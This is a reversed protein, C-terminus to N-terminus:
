LYPQLNEPLKINGSIKRFNGFTNAFAPSNYRRYNENSNACIGPLRVLFLNDKRFM